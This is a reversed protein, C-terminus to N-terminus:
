YNEPIDLLKYILQILIPLLFIFVLTNGILHLTTFALGSTYYLWFADLSGFLWISDVLSSAIDFLFTMMAGIVGFIALIPFVYLDDDPKFFSKTKLFGRILAGMLGVLSYYILQVTLLPLASAGYPNFFCFIFGSMVGIILGDRKGLIFGSLFIMMTFIEINPLSALLYGSVVSLATFTSLLVIRLSGRELWIKHNSIEGKRIETSNSESKLVMNNKKM